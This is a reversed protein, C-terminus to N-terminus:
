LPGEGLGVCGCLQVAQWLRAARLFISVSCACELILMHSLHGFLMEVRLQISVLGVQNDLVTIPIKVKGGSMPLRGVYVLANLLRQEHELVFHEQKVRGVVKVVRLDVNIQFSQIIQGHFDCM